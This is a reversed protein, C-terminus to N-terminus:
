NNFENKIIKVISDLSIPKHLFQDYLIYKNFFEDMADKNIKNSTMFYGKIDGDRKKLEDYLDFGDFGKINIGLFVLSYQDPIFYEMANLPDDYYDIKFGLEKIKNKILHLNESIDDIFLIKKNEMKNEMSQIFPEHHSVPIKITFKLGLDLSRNKVSISGDHLELLQKSIFLGLGTGGTSKTFFKTFLQDLEKVEISPSEDEITIIVYSSNKQFLSVIIERGQNEKTYFYSNNLLNDFAQSILSKDAEIFLSSTGYYIFKIDVSERRSISQRETIINSLIENIDFFDKKIRISNTEIRSIDLIDNAIDKLKEGNRIIIDVYELITSDKIKSKLIKSFGVIPLIPNRLQHSAIDIFDQQFINRKELTENKEITNWLFDYITSFFSILEDFSISYLNCSFIKKSEDYNIKFFYIIKKNVIITILNEQQESFSLINNIHINKISSFFDFISDFQNKNCIALIRTHSFNKESISKLSNYFSSSKLFLFSSFSNLYIDIFKPELNEFLNHFDISDINISM